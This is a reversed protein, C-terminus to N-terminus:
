FSTSGGNVQTYYDRDSTTLNSPDLAKRVIERWKSIKFPNSGGLNALSEDYHFAAMGTVNITKGVVAGFVNGNGVISVDANPAYVVASLSGNGSIQVKQVPSGAVDTGWVQFSSPAAGNAVGGGGATGDGSIKVDGATYITLAGTTNINIGGKGVMDVAPSGAAATIRMVVNDTITLRDSSGALSIESCSYYYKGGPNPQPHDGSLPLSINSSLVTSGGNQGHWPDMWTISSTTTTTVGNTTTTVSYTTPTTIDPLSETFNTTIRSTDMTGDSASLNGSIVGNSNMQVATTNSSGVSVYGYINANGIAATADVSTTAISGYARQPANTTNYAYNPSPSINSPNSNYSDVSANNGSFTISDKSVLGTSFFSTRVLDVVVMKLIAPGNKPTIISKAIATPTPIGTSSYDKVYVKVTGTANQSLSFSTSPTVKYADSGSITWGAAVWVADTSSTGANAADSAKNCTWLMDEIGAETINMSDNALFARQSTSTASSAMKMYSTLALAIVFAFILAVLLVSGRRSRLSSSTKM